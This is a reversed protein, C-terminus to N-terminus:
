KREMARILVFRTWHSCSLVDNAVLFGVGVGLGSCTSILWTHFCYSYGVIGMLRGLIGTLVLSRSKSKPSRIAEARSSMEAEKKM